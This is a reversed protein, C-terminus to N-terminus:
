WVAFIRNRATFEAPSPSADAVTFTRGRSAPDESVETFACLAVLIRADTDANM